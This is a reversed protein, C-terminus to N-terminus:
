HTMAHSWRSEPHATLFMTGSSKVHEKPRTPTMAKTTGASMTKVITSGNDGNTGGGDNEQNGSASVNNTNENNNNNGNNNESMKGNSSKM